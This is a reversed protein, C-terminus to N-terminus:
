RVSTTSSKASQEEIAAMEEKIKPQRRFGRRKSRKSTRGSSRSSARSESRTESTDIILSDERDISIFGVIFSSCHM